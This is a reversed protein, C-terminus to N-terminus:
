KYRGALYDLSTELIDAIKSLTEVDPQSKGTEYGAYTSQSIKLKQAIEEQTLGIKRRKEKLRESLISKMNKDGKNLIVM